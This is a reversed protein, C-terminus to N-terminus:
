KPSLSKRLANKFFIPADIWSDHGAKELLVLEVNKTETAIVREWVPSGKPGVVYDFEGNIVTIPFPHASLMKSWDYVFNTSSRTAAAGERNVFFCLRQKWRAIHYIEGAAGRICRLKDSEKATLTPKDLEAKKIEIQVEPREEFKKVVDGKKAFLELEEPTFFDRNGNKPDLAGLLVINKVNDPFTQLYNMALMTGFSHSILNIKELGLAKRLQELDQIHKEMSINEKTAHSLGAGRQDYFIFRFQNELGKSIDLLYQHGAGPGGHIVIVPDGKGVERIYLFTAKDETRLYWYDEYVPKRHAFSFTTFMLCYGIIVIVLFSKKM